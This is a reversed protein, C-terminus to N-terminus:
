TLFRDLAAEFSMKPFKGLRSKESCNVVSVHLIRDLTAAANDLCRQWRLAKNPTPNAEDPHPEHWHLGYKITADFGVLIIKKCGFNVVMNLAQFGSNGGWGVIGNSQLRDDDLRAILRLVNWEKNDSARYDTTVKQGQFEPCGNVWNWWKYDCAFLFDAWPALKWSNNIAVFRTRGIASRLDVDTASPGSAVIVCTEESWNPFWKPKM